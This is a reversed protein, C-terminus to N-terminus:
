VCCILRYPSIKGELSMCSKISMGNGGTVEISCLNSGTSKSRHLKTAREVQAFPTFIVAFGFPEERRDGTFQKGERHAVCLLSVAAGFHTGWYRMWLHWQGNVRGLVPIPPPKKGARRALIPIFVALLSDGTVHLHQHGLQYFVLVALTWLQNKKWQSIVFSVCFHSDANSFIGIIKLRFLESFLWVLTKERLVDANSIKTM